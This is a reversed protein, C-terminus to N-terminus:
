VDKELDREKTRSGCFRFLMYPWGLRKWFGLDEGFIHKSQFAVIIYVTVFTFCAAAEAYHGLTGHTFPVIEQVNM